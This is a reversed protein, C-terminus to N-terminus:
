KNQMFYSHLRDTFDVAAEDYVDIKNRSFIEKELYHSASKWDNFDMIELLAQEYAMESNSFIEEIFRDREDNLWKSIEQLREEPDTEKATLDYIPEEIFGDESLEDEEPGSDTEEEYEFGSETEIDDRELFSRWMPLDDEEEEIDDDVETQDATVDDYIGEDREKEERDNHLEASSPATEDDEVELVKYSLEVEPEDDEPEDTETDGPETDFIDSMREARNRNEKVLNMEEYISSPEKLDEDDAFEESEASEDSVSEDFVFKNLLTINDEGTESKDSKKVSSESEDKKEM